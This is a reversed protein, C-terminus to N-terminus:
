VKWQELVDSTESLEIQLDFRGAYLDLLDDHREDSSSCLADKVVVVRYGIDVASLVTALVCVDTEAGTVVITDCGREQLRQHLRGDAFCSYTSKDFIEAPPVFRRLAPVLELDNAALAARTVNSWKEFYARWTGSAQQPFQPPIFRTFLTRAPYHEVISVIAPLVRPLWPTSWPGAVDFIKQM